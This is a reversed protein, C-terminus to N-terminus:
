SLILRVYNILLAENQIIRNNFLPIFHPNDEVLEEWTEVGWGMLDYFINKFVCDSTLDLGKSKLFNYMESPKEKCARTKVFEDIFYEYEDYNVDEVGKSFDSIMDTFDVNIAKEKFEEFSLNINEYSFLRATSMPKTEIYDLIVKPSTDGLSNKAQIAMKAKTKEDAQRFLDLILKENSRRSTTIQFLNFATDQRSTNAIADMIREYQESSISQNTIIHSILDELGFIKRVPSQNNLEEIFFDVFGDIVQQPLTEEDLITKLYSSTRGLPKLFNDRIFCFWFYIDNLYENRYSSKLIEIFKGTGGPHYLGTLENEKKIKFLLLLANKLNDYSFIFQKNESFIDSTESYLTVVSSIAISLEEFNSEDSMGIEFLQSVIELREQLSLSADMNEVILSRISFDSHNVFYDLIKKNSSERGLLEIEEKKNNKFVKKLFDDFTENFHKAGSIRYLVALNFKNEENSNEYFYDIVDVKETYKIYNAAEKLILDKEVRQSKMQAISRLIQSLTAKRYIESFLTDERGELQNLIISYFRKSKIESLFDEPIKKNDANVTSGGKDELNTKGESVTFSLCLRRNNTMDNDYDSNIVYFMHLNGAYNPFMNNRTNVGTCWGVRRKENREESGDPKGHAWSISGKITKPEIVIWDSESYIVNFDQYSGVVPRGSQYSCQQRIENKNFSEKTKADIQKRLEDITINGSGILDKLKPGASRYIMEYHLKCVDLIEKIPEQTTNLENQIVRTYKTIFKNDDYYFDKFIKIEKKSRKNRQLTRILEDRTIAKQEKFLFSKWEKLINTTNM